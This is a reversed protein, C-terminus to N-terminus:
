ENIKGRGSIIFVPNLGELMNYTGVRHTRSVSVQSIDLDVLEYTKMLNLAEAVTEMTIANITIKATPNANFVTEFIEKLNGKSGGVFVKEPKAWPNEPDDEILDNIVKPAMGCVVKVNQLGFKRINEEVLNAGKAKSEVSLVRGGCVALALEVTVSGTGAGIDWIVDGIQPAIKAMTVARVESKTMPVNDRIFEDDDMGVNFSESINVKPNEVLIVSLNDFEDDIFDKASGNKIIEDDYSLREGISVKLNGLGNFTLDKCVKSVTMNNDLLFFTRKNCLVDEVPNGNRGHLSICKIDDWNTKLKGAFYQLSSIGCIIDYEYKKNVNNKEDILNCLRKCGSYFGTDGSMLIAFNKGQFEDIFNLIEDAKILAVGSKGYINGLQSVLRSAGILVDAQRILRAGELTLTDPNGMGVGIINVSKM